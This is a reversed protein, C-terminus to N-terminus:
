RIPYNTRNIISTNRIAAEQTLLTQISKLKEKPRALHQCILNLVQLGAAWMYQKLSKDFHYTAILAM